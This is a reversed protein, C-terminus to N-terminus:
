NLSVSLMGRQRPCLSGCREWRLILSWLWIKARRAGVKCHKSLTSITLRFILLNQQLPFDRVEQWIIQQQQDVSQAALGHRQALATVDSVQRAVTTAFGDFAIQLRYNQSATQNRLFVGTPLLKSNVVSRSMEVTQPLTGEAIVTASSAPIPAVRLTVETIIGLTGLSGTFLKCMDYGAVNKVVKGGARILEGSALAVKMGIILDRVSGYSMRRPGNLNAAVIGGVTTRDPFPADFPVLQNQQSMVSQLANLTIGSQVTVTLNAHDHDIVRDLRHLQLVLDVQRPPNGLSMATSGGWPIVAAAAENCIRLADAVQDPTEPACILAPIKGDVIHASLASMENRVAAAGCVSELRRALQDTTIKM